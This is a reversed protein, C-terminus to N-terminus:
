KIKHYIIKLYKQLRNSLYLKVIRKLNYKSYLSLKEKITINQKTNEFIILPLEKIKVKNKILYYLFIGYLIEGLYGITRPYKDILNNRKLEKEIKSLIDYQFRCLEFFYKKKLIYCNYGRHKKNNLYEVAYNYYEPRYKKINNLLIDLVKKDFFYKDHAQWLELVNKFKKGFSNIREVDAPEPIVGDYEKCYEKLLKIDDLSYKKKNRKNLTLEYIQNQENRYVNKKNKLSLYRRYHCLGYYDAELNKWAWYQVTLECFSMRKESINNGTNDGIIDKNWKGKKYTAGCYVPLFIDNKIVTSDLDIRHSVCIKINAM